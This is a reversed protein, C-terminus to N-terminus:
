IRMLVIYFNVLSKDKCLSFSILNMSTVQKPDPDLFKISPNKLAVFSPM